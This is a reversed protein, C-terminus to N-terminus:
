DFGWANWAREALCLTDARVRLIDDEVVIRVGVKRLSEKMRFLQAVNLGLQEAAEQASLWTAEAQAVMITM